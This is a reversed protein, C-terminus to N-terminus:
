TPLVGTPKRLDRCRNRTPAPASSTHHKPFHLPPFRIRGHHHKLSHRRRSRRRRTRPRLLHLTLLTLFILTDNIHIHIVRTYRSSEFRFFSLFSPGRTTHNLSFDVNYFKKKPHTHKYFCFDKEKANRTANKKKYDGGGTM